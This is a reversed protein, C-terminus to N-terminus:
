ARMREAQLEELVTLRSRWALWQSMVTNGLVREVPDVQRAPLERPKDQVSFYDSVHSPYLGAAEALQRYTMTKRQRLKWALRCAARWTALRRIVTGPVVLRQPQIVGGLLPLETGENPSKM